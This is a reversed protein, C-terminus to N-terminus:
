DTITIEYSPVTTNSALAELVDYMDDTADGYYFNRYFDVLVKKEAKTLSLTRKTELNM